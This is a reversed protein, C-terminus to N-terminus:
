KSALDITQVLIEGGSGDDFISGARAGEAAIYPADFDLNYLVEMAGLAYNRGSGTAWFRTYEYVDRLSYVSFIGNSNAILLDFQSSEVPDERDEVTNIFYKRKLKPHLKQFYKFIALRSSFDPEPDKEILDELIMSMAVYGTIGVFSDGWKFFKQFNKLYKADITTTGSTTLTEAAISIKSDKQVITITSM